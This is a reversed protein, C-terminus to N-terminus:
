FKFHFIMLQMLLLAQPLRQLPSLQPLILHVERTTIEQVAPNNRRLM